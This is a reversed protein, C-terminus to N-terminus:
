WWEVGSLAIEEVTPGIHDPFSSNFDCLFISDNSDGEDIFVFLYESLGFDGFVIFLCDDFCSIATTSVCDPQLVRSSSIDPDSDGESISIIGEIKTNGELVLSLSVAHLKLIIM